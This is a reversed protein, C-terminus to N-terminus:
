ENRGELADLRGELYAIETANAKAKVRAAACEGRLGRVYGQVAEAGEPWEDRIWSMAAAFPMKTQATFHPKARM